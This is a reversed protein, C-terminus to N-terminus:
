LALVRAKKKKKKIIIKLYNQLQLHHFKFMFIKTLFVLFYCSVVLSMVVRALKM